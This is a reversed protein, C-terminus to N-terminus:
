LYTGKGLLRISSQESTSTGTMDLRASGLLQDDRQTLRLPPATCPPIARFSLWYLFNQTLRKNIDTPWAQDAVPDFVDQDLLAVLRGDRPADGVSSPIILPIEVAVIMPQNQINRVLINEDTWGYPVTPPYTAPHIDFSGALNFAVTKVCKTLNGIASPNVSFEQYDGDVSDQGYAYTPYVDALGLLESVDYNILDHDLHYNYWEGSILVSKGAFLMERACTIFSYNFPYYEQVVRDDALIWVQDFNNVFWYGNTEETMWDELPNGIVHTVSTLGVSTAAGAIYSDIGAEVTGPGVLILVDAIM